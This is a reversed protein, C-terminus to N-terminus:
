YINDVFRKVEDIASYFHQRTEQPQSQFQLNNREWNAHMNQM